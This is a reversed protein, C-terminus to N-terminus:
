DNNNTTLAFQETTNTLCLFNFLHVHKLKYRPPSYLGFLNPLCLPFTLNGYCKRLAIQYVFRDLSSILKNLYNYCQLATSKKLDKTQFSYWCYMNVENNYM